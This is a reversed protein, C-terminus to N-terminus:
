RRSRCCRKRPRYARVLVPRLLEVLAEDRVDVVEDVRLRARREVRVPLVREGPERAHVADGPVLVDGPRDRADGLQELVRLQLALHPTQFEIASVSPRTMSSFPSSGAFTVSSANSRASARSGPPRLVRALDAPEVAVVVRLRQRLAVEGGADGPRAVDEAESFGFSLHAIGSFPPIMQVSLMSMGSPPLTGVAEVYM